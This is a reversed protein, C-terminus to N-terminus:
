RLQGSLARALAELGMGHGLSFGADILDSELRMEPPAIEPHRGLVAAPLGSDTVTGDSLLVMEGCRELIDEMRHTILVITRGERNLEDLISMVRDHGSRDLGVTPEDLVLMDPDMAIVGALAVRRQEGGSLAFPSRELFSEDLGVRGLASVALHRPDKLGLNRPGFMVDKLVTDEFLQHEPFQFALAVRCSGKTLIRGETPESLFSMLRALTSKGSGTRGAVGIFGGDDFRISVNNLAKREFPTGKDYVYSVNRLEMM